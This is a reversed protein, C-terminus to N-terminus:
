TSSAAKTSSESSNQSNKKQQLGQQISRLIPPLKQTFFSYNVAVVGACVAMMEDLELEAFEAPPLSTFPAALEPLLELANGFIELLLSNHGIAERIMKSANLDMDYQSKGDKLLQLQEIAISDILLKLQDPNITGLLRKFFNTIAVVQKLRAPRIGVVRGDGLTYNTNSSGFITDLQSAVPLDNTTISATATTTNTMAPTLSPSNSQQQNNPNM